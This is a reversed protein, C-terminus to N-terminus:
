PTNSAQWQRIAASFQESLYPSVELRTDGWYGSEYPSDWLDQEDWRVNIYALARVVDNNENMYAFLPEFWLTWVEQETVSRTGEGAPGDWIPSHNSRQRQQLDFGQPAAEAIMVPKNHARAFALVEDALQRPTPVAFNVNVSPQADPHMFWSLGVWDVYTDGPYWDGINDMRGGDLIVDTTSAAGQWVFAVNGVGYRRLGDVIRQFALVYRTADEYGQNWFGDFEYGIRLYVQGEVQSAFEALQEIHGDYHGLVLQDLAGPHDNETLSLGMAINRTGFNSATKLANVPGGGWDSELEIAEGALNIGLGGFGPESLIDYFDVYVTLADPNPCCNSALYGRIAGLDQGLILMNAARNPIASKDQDENACGGLAVVLLLGLVVKHM